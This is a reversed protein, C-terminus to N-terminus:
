VLGFMQRGRLSDFAREFEPWASQIVSLDLPVDRSLAPAEEREVAEIRGLDLTIAQKNMRM